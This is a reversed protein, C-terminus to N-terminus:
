CLTRYHNLRQGNVVLMRYDPQLAITRLVSWSLIFKTDTRNLLAVTDMEKLSIPAFQQWPAAPHGPM